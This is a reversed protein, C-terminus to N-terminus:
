QHVQSDAENHFMKRLKVISKDIGYQEGAGIYRQAENKRKEDDAPWEDVLMGSRRGLFFQGTM